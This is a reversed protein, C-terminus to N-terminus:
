AKLRRERRGDGIVWYEGDERRELKFIPVEHKVRELAERAGEFAERRGPASVFIYVTPEGPKLRGVRHYIKVKGVGRISKEIEEIKETAFPEYAEYELEIVRKGNMMGKVFGIFAVIAGPGTEEVLKKVEENLDLEGEIIGGGSVPPIVAVEDGERLAQSDQVQNGNVLLLLGELESLKPHLRWLVEKLQAVTANQSLELEELSTGAADRAISFYKVKLRMLYARVCHM